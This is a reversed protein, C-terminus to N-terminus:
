APADFAKQMSIKSDVEKEGYKSLYEQDLWTLCNRLMWIEMSISTPM